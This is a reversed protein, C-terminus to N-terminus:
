MRTKGKEMDLNNTNAYRLAKIALETKKITQDNTDM